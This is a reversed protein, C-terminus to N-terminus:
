GSTRAVPNADSCTVATEYKEFFLCSHSLLPSFGLIGDKAEDILPPPPPAATGVGGCANRERDGKAWLLEFSQM